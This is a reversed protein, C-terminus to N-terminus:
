VYVDVRFWLEWTEDPVSQFKLYAQLAQRTRLDMHGDLLVRKFGISDEAAWSLLNERGAPRASRVAQIEPKTGASPPVRPRVPLGPYYNVGKLANM